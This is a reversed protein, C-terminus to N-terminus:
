KEAVFFLGFDHMFIGNNVFLKVKLYTYTAGSSERQAEM